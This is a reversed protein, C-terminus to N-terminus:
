ATRELTLSRPIQARVRRPLDGCVDVPTRVSGEAQLRSALRAEGLLLLGSPVDGVGDLVTIRSSTSADRGDEVLVSWLSAPNSIDDRRALADVRVPHSPTHVPDLTRRGAELDDTVRMEGGGRRERAGPVLTPLDPDDPEVDFRNVIAWPHGDMSWVAISTLWALSGDPWRVYASYLPADSLPHTAALVIGGPHAPDDFTVVAHAFDLDAVRRM